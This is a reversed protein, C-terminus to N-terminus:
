IMTQEIGCDVAVFVDVWFINTWVEGIITFKGGFFWGIKKFGIANEMELPDLPWPLVWRPVTDITALNKGEDLEPIHPIRSQYLRAM